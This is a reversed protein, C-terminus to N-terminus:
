PWGGHLEQELADLRARIASLSEDVPLRGSPPVYHDEDELVALREAISSISESMESRPRQEIQQQLLDLRAGIDSLRDPPAHSYDDQPFNEQLAGIAARISQLQQQFAEDPASADIPVDVRPLRMQPKAVTTSTSIPAAPGPQLLSAWQTVGLAGVSLLLVAVTLMLAVTKKRGTQWRFRSRLRAPMPVTAPHQLHALHRGLLDSVEAASQFREAPDKELLKEIIEVLWEPIEPNVDRIPPPRSECIKRLVAMTREARFPPHGTCMAYLVSGLSFLDARHDVAKGDAQEPSMYQPTGAVVGSRTFSADDVTRALGFDTIMVREVGNELLINAPKVDRHVLGQAHAATLGAATQIGVRLIEKVQLPGDDRIRQQLSKGVVLPMVLYPMGGASDVAHIAVVHEHVIAAAARAERAFRRRAAASSAWQPALVKVAVYRNLTRDFGKLVIGMGGSGIVEEIEYPGFRGLKDPDDSPTLFDLTAPEPETSNRGETATPWQAFPEPRLFQGVERWLVPDAALAELRERCSQCTEIHRALEAQRQRPLRDLLLLKLREPDCRLRHSVM